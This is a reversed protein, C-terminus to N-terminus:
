NHLTFGNLEMTKPQGPNYSEKITFFLSKPHGIRPNRNSAFFKAMWWRYNAWNKSEIEIGWFFLFWRIFWLDKTCFNWHETRKGKKSTASYDRVDKVILLWSLSLVSLTENSCHQRIRSYRKMSSSSPSRIPSPIQLAFIWQLHGIFNIAFCKQLQRGQSIFNPPAWPLWHYWFWGM